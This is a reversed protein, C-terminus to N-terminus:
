NKNVRTNANGSPLPVNFHKIASMHIVALLNDSLDYLCYNDGKKVVRVPETM